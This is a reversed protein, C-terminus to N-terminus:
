TAGPPCSPPGCRHGLLTQSNHQRCQLESPCRVFRMTLLRTRSNNNRHVHSPMSHQLRSAAMHMSVEVELPM